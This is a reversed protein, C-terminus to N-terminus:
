QPIEYVDWGETSWLRFVKGKNTVFIINESYQETFVHKISNCFINNLEKKKKTNKIYRRHQFNFDLINDFDINQLEKM